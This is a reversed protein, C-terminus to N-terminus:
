FCKFVKDLNLIKGSELWLSLEVLETDQFLKFNESGGQREAIQVWM